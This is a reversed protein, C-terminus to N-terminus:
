RQDWWLCQALRLSCWAAAPATSSPLWMRHHPSPGHQEPLALGLWSRYNLFCPLPLLLLLLLLLLALLLLMYLPVFAILCSSM